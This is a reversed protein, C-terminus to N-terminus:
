PRAILAAGCSGLSASAFSDNQPLLMRFDRMYQLEVRVPGTVADLVHGGAMRDDSLFHFHYGAANVQALYAPTRFGVMTGRADTLDFVSQEAVAESLPPYPTSQRPVSRTQMWPFTGTVKFAVPINFTSLQADLAQQLEAYDLPGDLNLVQDAVFTTVAAFPTTEEDGVHEPIGGTPVRFVEGDLIVMEGDLADFTGLGLDGHQRLEGITLEGEYVGVSLAGLTSTQFLTHQSASAGADNSGCGSACLLLALLLAGVTASCTAARRAPHRRMEM